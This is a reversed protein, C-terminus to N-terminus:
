QRIRSVALMTATYATIDLMGSVVADNEPTLLAVADTSIAASAHQSATYAGLRQAHSKGDYGAENNRNRDLFVM